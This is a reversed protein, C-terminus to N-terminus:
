RHLCWCHRRLQRSPSPNPKNSSCFIFTSTRSILSCGTIIEFSELSQCENTYIFIITCDCLQLCIILIIVRKCKSYTPAFVSTFEINVRGCPSENKYVGSIELCRSILSLIVGIFNLNLNGIRSAQKILLVKSDCNVIHIFCRCDGWTSPSITSWYTCVFIGKKNDYKRCCVRFILILNSLLRLRLRQVKRM